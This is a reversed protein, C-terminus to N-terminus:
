ANPNEGQKMTVALLFTYYQWAFGRPKLKRKRFSETLTNQPMLASPIWKTTILCWPGNKYVSAMSKKAWAKGGPRTNGEPQLLLKQSILSVPWQPDRAGLYM